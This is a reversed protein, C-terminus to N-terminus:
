HCPVTARGGCASCDPRLVARSQARAAVISQQARALLQKGESLTLLTLGLNAIALTSGSVSSWRTLWGDQATLRQTSWGCSRGWRREGVRCRGACDYAEMRIGGVKRGSGLGTRYDGALSGDDPKCQRLAPSVTRGVSRLTFCCTNGANCSTLTIAAM